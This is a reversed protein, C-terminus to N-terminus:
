PDTTVVVTVGYAKIREWLDLLCAAPDPPMYFQFDWAEPDPAFRGTSLTVPEGIRHGDALVVPESLILRNGECRDFEVVEEAGTRYGLVANAAFTGSPPAALVVAGTVANYSNVVVPEEDPRGLGLVAAYPGAAPFDRIVRRVDHGIGHAFGLAGYLAFAAAEPDLALVVAVEQAGAGVNLVIEYGLASWGDGGAWFGWPAAVTVAKDGALAGVSVTTIQEPPTRMTINAGAISAIRREATPRAAAGVNLIVAGGDEPFRWGDAVTLESVLPAITHAGPATDLYDAGGRHLNQLPLDLVLVDHELTIAEGGGLAVPLPEDLTWRDSATDNARVRVSYGAVLIRHGLPHSSTPYSNTGGGVGANAQLTTVGEAHAGSVATAAVSRRLFRAVIERDEQAGTARAVRASANASPWLSADRLEACVRGAIADAALRAEFPIEAALTSETETPLHEGPEYLFHGPFRHPQLEGTDDRINGDEIRLSDPLIVRYLSLADANSYPGAGVPLYLSPPVDEAVREFYWLVDVGDALVLGAGEPFGVVSTARLRTAGGATAGSLTTAFEPPVDGHLWHADRMDLPHFDAPIYVEVQNSATTHIRWGVGNQLVTCARLLAGPRMLDVPALAPHSTGLPKRLFLTRAAADQRTFEVVESEVRVVGSEGLAITEGELLLFTRGDPAAKALRGHAIDPQPGYHDRAIPPVTLTNTGTDVDLVVVVEERDDDADLLMAFPTEDTLLSADDVLLATAGAVVDARLRVSGGARVLHLLKVPRDLEAELTRPNRYAFGIEEETALGPDLRLTGRQLIQSGPALFITRDGPAVAAALQAVRAHQPGICAEMLRTFVLPIQKPALAVGAVIARWRDDDYGGHPRAFGISASLSDLFWREATGIAQQDRAFRLTSQQREPRGM